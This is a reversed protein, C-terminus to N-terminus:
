RQSNHEHTIGECVGNADFLLAVHYAGTPLTEMWQLLTKGHPQASTSTPQGVAAIIDPKALGRLTGVKAFRSRLSVSHLMSKLALYAAGCVLWLVGLALLVNGM